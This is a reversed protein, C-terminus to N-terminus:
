WLSLTNFQTATHQLTCCQTAPHQLKICYTATYLLTSYRSEEDGGCVCGSGVSSLSLSLALSLALSLDLDFDPSVDVFPSRFLASSFLHSLSLPSFLFLSITLSFCHSISFLFFIAVPLTHTSLLSLSFSLFMVFSLSVCVFFHTASLYLLRAHLVRARTATHRLINSRNNCCVAVLVQSLFPWCTQM